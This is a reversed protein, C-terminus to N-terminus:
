RHSKETATMESTHIKHLPHETLLLIIRTSKTIYLLSLKQPLFTSLAKKTTITTLHFSNVGCYTSEPFDAIGLPGKNPNIATTGGFMMPSSCFTETSMPWASSSSQWLLAIGGGRSVHSLSPRGKSFFGPRVMESFPLTSCTFQATKSPPHHSPPPCVWRSSVQIVEGQM